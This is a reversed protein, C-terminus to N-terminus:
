KIKSLDIADAPAQIQLPTDYESFDFSGVPMDGVAVTSSLRLLHPTGNASVFMKSSKAGPGTIAIAPTGAVDARSGEFGDSRTAIVERMKAVVQQDFQRIGLFPRYEKSQSSPFLVWKGGLMAGASKDGLMNEWFSADAGMFLKGGTTRLKVTAPTNEFSGQMTGDAQDQGLRFDLRMPKGEDKFDAKVHVSKANRFGDLAAKVLEAPPKASNDAGSPPASTMPGDLTSSPKAGSKGDGGGCATLTLTAALLATGATLRTTRGM